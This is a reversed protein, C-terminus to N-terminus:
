LFVTNRMWGLGLISRFADIPVFLDILMVKGIPQREV